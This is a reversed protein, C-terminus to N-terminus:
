DHTEKGQNFLHAYKGTTYKTPDLPSEAPRRGNRGGIAHTDGDSDRLFFTIERNLWTHWMVNWDRARTGLERHKSLFTDRQTQLYKRGHWYAPAHILDKTRDAWWQSDQANLKFEAPAATPEHTPYSARATPLRAPARSANQEARNQETDTRNQEIGTRLLTVHVNSPLTVDDDHLTVDESRPSPAALSRHRKVRAGVDDSEFQEEEWGAIHLCLEGTDPRPQTDVLGASELAAVQVTCLGEDIRLIFAIDTLTPLFGRPTADGAMCRLNIWCKFIEGPLRQIVPDNLIRTYERFWQM